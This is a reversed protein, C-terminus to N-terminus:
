KPQPWQLKYKVLYSNNFCFAYLYGNSHAITWPAYLTHAAIDDESQRPRKVVNEKPYSLRIVRGTKSDIFLYLVSPKGIREKTWDVIPLTLITYTDDTWFASWPHPLNKKITREYEDAILAAPEPSLSKLFNCTWLIHGKNDFKMILPTHGFSVVLSGDPHTGFSVGGTNEAIYPRCTLHSFVEHDHGAVSRKRVAFARANPGALYFINGSCDAGVSQHTSLMYWGARQPLALDKDLYRGEASYYMMKFDQCVLVEEKKLAVWASYNALEGPGKGHKGWSALLSFDSANLISIRVMRVDFLVLRTGAEDVGMSEVWAWLHDPANPPTEAERVLQMEQAARLPAEQAHCRLVVALVCIAVEFSCHLFLGRKMVSRM